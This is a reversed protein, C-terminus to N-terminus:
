RRKRLQDLAAMFYLDARHHHGEARFAIGGALAADLTDFGECCDKIGIDHQIYLHFSTKDYDIERTVISGKTKRPHYEIIRYPGVEHFAVASGWTFRDGAKVLLYDTTDGSM